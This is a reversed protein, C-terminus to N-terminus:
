LQSALYLNPYFALDWHSTNSTILLGSYAERLINALRTVDQM